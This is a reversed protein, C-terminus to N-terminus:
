NHKTLQWSKFISYIADLGDLLSAPGPQLIIESPIEYIFDNKVASIQDWYKRQIMKNKNFKKGCWSALIIDPNKQVIDDPNNIIRDKALSEKGLHSFINDGGAL